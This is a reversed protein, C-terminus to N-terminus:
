ENEKLLTKIRNLNDSTVCVDRYIEIVKEATLAEFDHQSSTIFLGLMELTAPSITLKGDGEGFCQPRHARRLFIKMNFQEGDYIVAVNVRAEQEEDIRPLRKMVDEAMRSIVREEAGGISIYPVCTEEPSSFGIGEDVKFLLKEPLEVAQFHFHDPASAGCKGGNYFVVMGRFVKAFHLMDSIKGALLQPEHKKSPITLHTEVVPYPNVLIDFSETEIKEQEEPRAEECLFCGRERIAKWTVDAIASRRRHAALIKVIEQAPYEPLFVRESEESADKLNRLNDAFLPWSNRQREYMEDVKRILNRENLLKRQALEVTRVSDKFTNNANIKAHSLAHDTNDEWRRCLYLSDYIRGIRYERSIALGVAYDEGYSVNPFSIKRILSTAFARPAGLGNIRLANNAGNADTWERHDILGPPLINGDFDTLTYSGVVMGCKEDLFKDVIRQLVDQHHYIDDSDLQVAFRGCHPSNVALNWCGGI